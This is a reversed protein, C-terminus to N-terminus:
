YVFFLVKTLVTNLKKSPSNLSFPILYDTCSYLFGPSILLGLLSVSQLYLCVLPLFHTICDRLTNLSSSVLILCWTGPIGELCYSIYLGNLYYQLGKGCLNSSQHCLTFSMWLENPLHITLISLQIHFLQNLTILHETRERRSLNWEKLDTKSEHASPRNKWVAQM